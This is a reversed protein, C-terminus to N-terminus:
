LNRPRTWGGVVPRPKVIENAAMLTVEALGEFLKRVRELQEPSAEECQMADLSAAVASLRDATRKRSEQSVELTDNDSASPNAFTNLYRLAENASDSRTVDFPATLQNAARQLLEKAQQLVSGSAKDISDGAEMHLTALVVKDAMAGVRSAQRLADLSTAEDTARSGMARNSRELVQVM